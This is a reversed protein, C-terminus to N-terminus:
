PWRLHLGRLRTLSTYNTLDLHLPTISIFGQQVASFDTGEGDVFDLQEGGIWYYKKGRPDVKEVIADSYRRKGQRTLAYGRLLEAQLNPVNVNLLTDPPLCDRLV